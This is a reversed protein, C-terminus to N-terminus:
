DPLGQFLSLQEPEPNAARSLAESLGHLACLRSVLRGLEECRPCACYYAGGYREEYRSRLGPFSRDLERYFYARQRDRLTVGLAPALYRAGAQAAGEVVAALNDATDEIFPLIPM